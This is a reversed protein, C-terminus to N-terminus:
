SIGLYGWIRASLFTTAKGTKSAPTGRGGVNNELGVVDVM